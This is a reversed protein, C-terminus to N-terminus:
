GGGPGRDARDPLAYKEQHEAIYAAVEADTVALDDSSARIYQRAVLHQLMAAKRYGADQLTGKEGVYLQQLILDRYSNEAITTIDKLSHNMGGSRAFVDRATYERGDVRFVPQDPQDVFQQASEVTVLLEGQHLDAYAEVQEWAYAVMDASVYTPLSSEAEARRVEAATKRDKVWFLSPALRGDVVQTIGGIPTGDFLLALTEPYYRDDTRKIGGVEGGMPATNGQSYQRAADEFGVKGALVDARVQELAARDRMTIQYIFALDEREPVRELVSELTTRGEAVPRAIEELFPLYYDRAVALTAAREAAQVVEPLEARAKILLAQNTITKKLAGAFVNEALAAKGEYGMQYQAVYLVVQRDLPEGNVRAVVEARAEAVGCWLATVLAITLPTTRLM